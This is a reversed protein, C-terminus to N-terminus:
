LGPDSLAAVQRAPLLAISANQAASPIAWSIQPLTM